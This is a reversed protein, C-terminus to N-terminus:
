RLRRMPVGLDAAQELATARADERGSGIYTAEEGLQHGNADLVQIIWSRTNRDYWYVVESPPLDDGPPLNFHYQTM